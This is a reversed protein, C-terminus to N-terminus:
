HRLPVTVDSILGSSPRLRLAYPGLSLRDFAIRFIGAIESSDSANLLSRLLRVNLKTPEVTM